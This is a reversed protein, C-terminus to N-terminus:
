KCYKEVAEVAIVWGMDKAKRLDKCGDKEQKILLKIMGRHYYTGGDPPNLAIAKTLDAIAGNYDKLEKEAFARYLYDEAFSSDAEIAKTYAVVAGAYDHDTWYKDGGSQSYLHHISTDGAGIMEIFADMRGPHSLGIADPDTIVTDAQAHGCTCVWSLLLVFIIRKM